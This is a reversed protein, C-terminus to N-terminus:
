VYQIEIEGFRVSGDLLITGQPQSDPKGTIELDAFATSARSDVRFKKPVILTLQGFTCKANILCDEAVEECQTLDVTLDGFSCNTDGYRLRPLAVSRTADGFTLGCCFSDDDVTFTSEVKESGDKTYIRKGNKHIHFRPKKPKRLADVLLSIGFLVIIIPFVLESGIDLHWIGLNEVLFYGGFLACGFGFFSFKRILTNLGFVLLSSPWLIGWFSVDWQYIAKALCLGGVLLVLIAFCVASRRGSDWRFEWNGSHVHIGESEDTDDEVIQAEHVTDGPERGLLADTSIGFIEALKPLMTIDPCSQDNEWKSVAQPTVGLREALQDQTLGLRKRNEVIRKGLTQEM